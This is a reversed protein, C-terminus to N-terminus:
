RVGAGVVREAALRGSLLVMPVGIGPTTGCGALVVNDAVVNGPRFPGTQAFKHSASFPTGAALGQEAWQRPTVVEEVEIADGLGVYGERELRRVLDDRVRPTISAWDLEAGDDLNPVLCLASMTTHGAPALTPDTVTPATVLLSPDHMLRGSTLERLSRQWSAGFHLNHHAIKEYHGRVGALLLVCSPSWRLRRRPRGLLRWAEPLDVNLIVTDAALREGHETMVATFRDGRRELSTVATDYRFEVGHKAAANALAQPVAHMGGRPFCVGAVADLYAISAYM